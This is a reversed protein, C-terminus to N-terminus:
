KLDRWLLANEILGELDPNNLREISILSESKFNRIASSSRKLVKKITKLEKKSFQASTIVPSLCIIVFLIKLKKM